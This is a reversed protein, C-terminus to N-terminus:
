KRICMGTIVIKDVSVQYAPLFESVMTIKFNIIGNGRLAKLEGLALDFAEEVTPPQYSRKKTQRMYIDEMQVQSAKKGNKVWGGTCEVYLSGLPEYEFSVSNAESIFVGKQSLYGYDICASYQGPSPVLTACSTVLVAVMLMSFLCKKM